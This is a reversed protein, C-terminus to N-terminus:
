KVPIDIVINCNTFALNTDVRFNSLGSHREAHFLDLTYTGGPTIELQSAAADLNVTGMQPPHLGGLDLALRGNIFVWLDDDGTFSFTEGGVYKFETHIETTFGFNHDQEQNGFGLGDLPFFATSEFTRIDGNPEFSFSTLYARNDTEVNRYWQDFDAESTTFIHDGPAHVPKQDDGLLFEVIGQEGNGGYTEFDPHGGEIDGRRFDRVIGIIESGCGEDDGGSDIDVGDVIEQGVLWGGFEGPTFGAPLMYPGPPPGGSGKQGGMSFDIDGPDITDKGQQSAGSGLGDGDGNGSGDGDGDGPTGGDQCGALGSMGLLAVSLVSCVIPSPPTWM